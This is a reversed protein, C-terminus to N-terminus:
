PNDSAALIHIEIDAPGNLDPLRVLINGSRTRACCDLVAGNCTAVARKDATALLELVSEARAMTTDSTRLTIPSRDCQIQYMGNGASVVSPGTLMPPCVLDNWLAASDHRQVWAPPWVLLLSRGCGISGGPPPFLIASQADSDAARLARFETSPQIDPIIWILRASAPHPPRHEIRAAARQPSIPHFLEFTWRTEDSGRACLAVPTPAHPGSPHISDVLIRGLRDITYRTRSLPAADDTPGVALDDAPCDVVVRVANAELVHQRVPVAGTPPTPDFRVTERPRPPTRLQPAAIPGLPFPGCREEFQGDSQRMIDCRSIVGGKFELEFRGVAGVRIRAAMETVYLDGDRRPEPDLWTRSEGSLLIRAVTVEVPETSMSRVLVSRVRRRDLLPGASELDFRLTSWGAPVTRIRSQLTSVGDAGSRILIQLSADRSLHVRLSVISFSSWDSPDTPADPNADVAAFALSQGAALTAAAGASTVTPAGGPQTATAVRSSIEHEVAAHSQEPGFFVRTHSSWNHPTAVTPVGAGIKSSDV